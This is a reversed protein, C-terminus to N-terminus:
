GDGLVRMPDVRTARRVPRMCALTGSGFLAAIVGAYVAPDRPEVGVLVASLLPAILAALVLGITIGVGLQAAGQGLILRMISGRQAGLAIRIAMERTRRGVAMSMVGYLGVIALFLAIFGFIVFM